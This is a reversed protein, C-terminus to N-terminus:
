GSVLDKGRGAILGKGFGSSGYTATFGEENGADAERLARKDYVAGSRHSNISLYM